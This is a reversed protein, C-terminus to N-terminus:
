RVAEQAAGVLLQVGYVGPVHPKYEVRYGRSRLRQEAAIANGGSNVHLMVTGREERAVTIVAERAGYGLRNGIAKRAHREVHRLQVQKIKSM